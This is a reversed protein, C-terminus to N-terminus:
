GPPMRAIRARRGHLVRIADLMATAAAWLVFFAFVAESERLREMIPRANEDIRPQVKSRSSLENRPEPAM